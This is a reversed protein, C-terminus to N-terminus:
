KNVGPESVPYKTYSGTLTFFFTSGKKEESEVWIKGGHKEIFEKCLLLGLGTSLENDTGMSGVKEGIKFLKKLEKESIGIGTDRVSIEIMGNETSRADLTISGNKRTFKVANSILNRFVTNIMKEDASVNISEDVQNIISIGKQGARELISVVSHSTLSFLNHTKLNFNMIGQQMSAWELLNELLKYLNVASENLSQSFDIFESQTFDKSETAMIETLNLFGSFPSKLDHAIISFFKDKAANLEKLQNNQQQITLEARKRETIDTHMGVLGVTAGSEDIIADVRLLVIFKRGSKSLMDVEGSWLGGIRVKNVIEHAIDKDAYIVSGGGALKFKRSLINSFIQILKITTFIIDM